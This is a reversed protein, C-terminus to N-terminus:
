DCAGQEGEVRPKEEAADVIKRFALNAGTMILLTERLKAIEDTHSKIQDAVAGKKADLEDMEKQISSIALYKASPSRNM